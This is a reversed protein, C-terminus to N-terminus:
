KLVARTVPLVFRWQGDERVVPRKEKGGNGGDEVYHITAASDSSVVVKKLVSDPMEGTEGSYFTLSKAYLKGTMNSLEKASLGVKKEYATKDAEGLKSYSEQARKGERGSDDQTDKALLNWVKDADKAKIAAQLATFAQKIEEESKKTNDGPKEYALAKSIPLVFKWKGDELVVSRKEKEGKGDDEIYHVAATSDTILGVKDLKSGPMEATEGTYFTSSKAYLKGTMETMEKASLGVKKEYGAKEGDPIKSFTEKVAKGERDCDDQTDKALLNWVKDADKAKIAAQLSAFSEKIQDETKKSSDGSKGSPGGPKNPSTNCGIFCALAVILLATSSLRM